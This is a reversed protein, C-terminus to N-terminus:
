PSRCDGLAPLGIEGMREGGLCVLQIQQGPRYTAAENLMGPALIADVDAFNTTDAHLSVYARGKSDRGVLRVTGFVTLTRGKNRRSRLV